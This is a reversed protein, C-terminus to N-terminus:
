SYFPDQADLFGLPREAKPLSTLIVKPIVWRSTGPSWRWHFHNWNAAIGAPFGQDLEVKWKVSLSLSVLSAAEHTLSTYLTHPWRSKIVCRIPQPLLSTPLSVSRRLWAGSSSNAVRHILRKLSGVSIKLIKISDTWNLETVWEHRVRQSGMFQLVGPKGTWWWSVSSVWVWTWRTLSAMWGDWGRDDGEGGAKLRKWCWPRKWQTLEECWTALTNSSWSWCWDKWHINLISKRQSLGTPYGQLGLSEWSDEGVGYNLLM